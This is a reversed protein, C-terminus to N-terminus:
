SLMRALRSLGRPKRSIKTLNKEQVVPSEKTLLSKFLSLLYRDSPCFQMLLTLKVSHRPSIKFDNLILPFYDVADFTGCINRGFSTLWKRLYSIIKTYKKRKFVYDWSTSIARIVSLKRQLCRVIHLVFLISNRSVSLLFPLARLRTLYHSTLHNSRSTHRWAFTCGPYRSDGTAGPTYISDLRTRSHPTWKEHAPPTCEPHGHHTATYTSAQM